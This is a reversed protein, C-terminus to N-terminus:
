DGARAQKARYGKGGQGDSEIVGQQAMRQLLKLAADRKMGMAEAVTKSDRWEPYAAHLYLVLKKQKRTTSVEWPKLGSVEWGGGHAMQALVLEQEDVMKGAVNLTRYKMGEERDDEDWGRMDPRSLLINTHSAGAVGASGSLRNQWESHTGKNTHHVVVIAVDPHSLAFDALRGVAEMDRAYVNAKPNESLEDRIRAFLDIVILKSGADIEAQMDAMAAEGVGTELRVSVPCHDMDIDNGLAIREARIDLLEHWEELDFYSVRCQRTARGLFPKGAAVAMCMQLVLYSKGGKPAGALMHLGRTIMGEVLWETKPINMKRLAGLMFSSPLGNILGDQQAPAVSEQEPMLNGSPIAAFPGQPKRVAGGAANQADTSVKGQRSRKPGKAAKRTARATEALHVITGFGVADGRDVSFGDWRKSCDGDQFKSGKMSWGEWMQLADPHGNSEKHLAMGVKYWDDYGCDPDIDELLKPARRSIDDWLTPVREPPLAVVHTIDPRATRKSFAGHRRQILELLPGELNGLIAGKRTMAGFGTNGTMTFYRGASYVEVGSKNAGMTVDCPGFGILHAGSGSFSREVYLGQKLATDIIKSAWPEAVKGWPKGIKDLDVGHWGDGLAFGLGDYSDPSAALAAVAEDYTALRAIDRPTGTKGRSTGSTYYPKKAKHLLWRKAERMAEPYPQTAAPKDTDNTV